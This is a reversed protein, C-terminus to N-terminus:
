FNALAVYTITTAYVGGPQTTAVNIIYSVTYKRFDDPASATAIADGSHYRFQNQQDYGPMVTAVGPGVVDQGIVPATNARLNIGFQSIGKQSLGGSMAPLTNNGSTMTGGLAWMTYGNLANTAVVLQSQAASTLLPSLVGVDSFPETASGCNFATISEGVCFILYPPVEANVALSSLFYLALGGADTYPGGGDSTPYLYVRAYMPGPNAPNTINGFEYTGVTSAAVASPPITMVIENAPSGPVIGYGVFGAQSDLTASSADFGNPATCSVDLLASDSCFRVRISGIVFSTPYTFQLRYEVGATGAYNNSVRLSRPEPQAAYLPVAPWFSLLLPVVLIFFLTKDPAFKIRLYVM